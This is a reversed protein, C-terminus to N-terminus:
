KAAPKKNYSAKSYGLQFQKMVNNNTSMGLVFWEVLFSWGLTAIIPVSVIYM